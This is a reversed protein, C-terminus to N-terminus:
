CVVFYIQIFFQVKSQSSNLFCQPFRLFHQNGANEGKGVINDIPKKGQNTLLRSQTTLLELCIWFKITWCLASRSGRPPETTLTDSELGQPRSNSVRNFCVKKGAYKRREGRCFCIPFTTLPKPFLLQTLAPTRFGPFMHTDDVVM